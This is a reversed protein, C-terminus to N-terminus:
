DKAYVVINKIDQNRLVKLLYNQKYRLETAELHNSVYLVLTSNQIKISKYSITTKGLLRKVETMRSDQSQHGDYNKIINALKEM